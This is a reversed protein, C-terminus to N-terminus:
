KTKEPFLERIMRSGVYRDIAKKITKSYPQLEDVARKLNLDPYGFMDKGALNLGVRIAGSLVEVFDEEQFTYIEPKQQLKESM